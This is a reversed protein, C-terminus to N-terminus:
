NNKTEYGDWYNRIQESIEELILTIISFISIVVFLEPWNFSSISEILQWGLGTGGIIGVVATERLLIDTRYSAYSLYRTSMQSLSGYLWATRKGVGRTILAHFKKNSQNELGEKLLRGMVAANHLGLVLAGLAISPTCFFLILLATLPIPIIRILTWFVGQLRIGIKSPFMIFGLIPLGIAIGSAFFTLYLTKLILEGTPLYNIVSKISQYTPLNTEPLLPRFIINIDGEGIWIMSLRFVIPLSILLSFIMINRVNSIKTKNIITKITKETIIITLGLIWLSTSLENFQLSQLTLIIENGIGGLGFMGLLTSGRLACEFRYGCYSIITPVAKPIISTIINNLPKVGNYKLSLMVRHDLADIQNSVVRAVIATYPISIALIAVWSNIGYVQILLLGWILEHISRPISLLRRIVIAIWNPYNFSYWFIDSSLIGFIIGIFSSVLWSLLAISITVKLGNLSSHLVDHDLSPHFISLIFRLFIDLGGIHVGNSIVLLVPILSLAPIITLILPSVKIRSM